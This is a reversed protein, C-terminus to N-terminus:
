RWPRDEDQLIAAAARDFEKKKAPRCAYIVVGISMAILYFLGFSQTAALIREPSIDM